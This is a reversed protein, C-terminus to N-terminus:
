SWVCSNLFLDQGDGMQLANGTRGELLFVGVVLIGCIGACLGDLFNGGFLLGFGLAGLFYGLYVIPVPYVLRQSRTVEMWRQAEKPEPRQSCYARSLGSFKEVSDLDNGHSGIRRMRTIPTGDEMMVTVILYNPIAFVESAIGYSSLVRSVSEEVRFTEAGCMALEYGLDTALDLLINYDM